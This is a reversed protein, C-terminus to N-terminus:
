FELKIFPKVPTVQREPPIPIIETAPSQIVDEARLRLLEAEARPLARQMQGILLIHLPLENVIETQRQSASLLAFNGSTDLHNSRYSKSKGSGLNRPISVQDQLMSYYNQVLLAQQEPLLDFFSVNKSLHYDYAANRSGTQLAAVLQASLSLSIYSTGGHQYQWVHTMEHIYTEADKLIAFDRPVRINNAVTRYQLLDTPVLQVRFYDISNGFITRALDIEKPNLLRGAFEAQVTSVQTVLEELVPSRVSIHSKADDKQRFIKDIRTRSQSNQQGVHPVTHAFLKSGDLTNLRHNGEGIVIDNGITYDLSSLSSDELHSIRRLKHQRSGYGQQMVHTLEHALLKKGNLTHPNYRGEFIIDNGVTYALANVIKASRNAIEDSHIRVNSFDYGFRTEMFERTSSDLPSGSQSLTNSIDAAINDSIQSLNSVDATTPQNRSIRIKGQQEEDECSTYKRNIKEDAESLESPIYPEKIGVIHEAVRDAEQEYEDGPQSVKLKTHIDAFKFSVNSNVPMQSSRNSGHYDLSHKNLLNLFDKEKTIVSHKNQKKGQFVRLLRCVTPFNILKNFVLLENTEKDFCSPYDM